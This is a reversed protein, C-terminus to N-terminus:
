MSRHEIKHGTCGTQNSVIHGPEQQGASIAHAHKRPCRGVRTRQGTEVDFDRLSVNTVGIRDLSGHVPDIPDDMGSGINVDAPGL